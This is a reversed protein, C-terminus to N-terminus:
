SIFVCQFSARMGNEGNDGSRNSANIWASFAVFAILNLKKLLSTFKKRERICRM